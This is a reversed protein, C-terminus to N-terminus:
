GVRGRLCKVWGGEGSPAVCLWAQDVPRQERKGRPRQRSRPAVEEEDETRRGLGAGCRGTVQVSMKRDIDPWLPQNNAM